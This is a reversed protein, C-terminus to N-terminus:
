AQVKVQELSRSVGLTMYVYYSLFQVKIVSYIISPPSISRLVPLHSLLSPFQVGTGPDSTEHRLRTIDRGERGRVHKRSTQSASQSSPMSGLLSSCKSATQLGHTRFPPWTADLVQWISVQGLQMSSLMVLIARPATTHPLGFQGHNIFQDRSLVLIIHSLPSISAVTPLRRHQYINLQQQSAKVHELMQIFKCQGNMM